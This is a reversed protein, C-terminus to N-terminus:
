KEVLDAKKENLLDSRGLASNYAMLGNKVVNALSGKQDDCQTKIDDYREELFLDKVKLIFSRNNKRGKALTLTIFREIIYTLLIIQFSILLIVIPGGKYVTGLYNGQLPQNEPNSGEFNGTYGLVNYYIFYAAVVSLPIVVIAFVSQLSQTLKEVKGNM